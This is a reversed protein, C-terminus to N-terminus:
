LKDEEEETDKSYQLRLEERMEYTAKGITYRYHLLFTKYTNYGDNEYFFKNSFEADGDLQQIALDRYPKITVAGDDAIELVMAAREFAEKSSSYTENGVMVRVSNKSLPTVIKTGPLSIETGGAANKRKGRMTYVTSGDSKAWKNKMMVHYLIFSKEPNLECADYSEVRLPIFYTTDPSLGEPHISIPMEGKISGAKLVCKLSSINYFRAPLPKAYKGVNLDFNSKNYADILGRDEVVTVTVDRDLPKSGGVSFAVYGMTEDRDLHVMKTNVNESNCIFAFVNKYQEREFVEYDDCSTLATLAVAMMIYKIKM